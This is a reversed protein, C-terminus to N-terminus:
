SCSPLRASRQAQGFGGGAGGRVVPRHLQGVGVHQAGGIAIRLGGGDDVPQDGLLIGGFGIPAQKVQPADGVLAGPVPGGGLAIQLRRQLQVRFLGFNQVVQAVGPDVAALTQGLSEAHDLLRHRQPGLRAGDDIGQSPSVVAEAAEGVRHLVELLRGFELGGVRGDVVV